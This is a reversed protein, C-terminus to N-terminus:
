KGSDRNANTGRLGSEIADKDLQRVGTVSKDRRALNSGTPLDPAAMDLKGEGAIYPVNACATLGSALVVNSALVRWAVQWSSLRNM